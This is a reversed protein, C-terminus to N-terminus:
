DTAGAVWRALVDLGQLLRCVGAHFAGLAFLGGEELALRAVALHEVGAGAIRVALVGYPVQRQRLGAWLAGPRDERHLGGLALAGLPDARHLFATVGLRCRLEGRRRFLRCGGGSSGSIFGAAQGNLRAVSVTRLPPTM